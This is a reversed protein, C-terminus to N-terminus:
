KKIDYNFLSGLFHNIKTVYERYYFVNNRICYKKMYKVKETDLNIIKELSNIYMCIKNNEIVFAM